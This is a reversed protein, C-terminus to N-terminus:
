GEEQGGTPATPAATPEAFRQMLKTRVRYVKQADWSERHLNLIEWCERLLATAADRGRIAEDRELTLEFVAYCSECFRGNESTLDAPNGCSQCSHSSM